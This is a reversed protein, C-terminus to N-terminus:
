AYGIRKIKTNLKSLAKQFKSQSDESGKVRVQLYGFYHTGILEIETKITEYEQASTTYLVRMLEQFPTDQEITIEYVPLLGEKQDPQLLIAPNEAHDEKLFDKILGTEGQEVLERLTGVATIEGHEMLALRDCISQVVEMQHTILLITIGLEKNIRKLLRLISQTTLPDLASTPEDCLLVHPNNALARAIAVRQKQGGSLSSPYENAKESLGVLELLETIRNKENQDIPGSLEIPFSVNQWVTRSSLLNFHQFIMGLKKREDRLNKNHLELINKGDIYVKGSEPKELLNISRILTSKGAGSSGIIGFIEGKNINLSVNKLVTLPKGAQTFTKYLNQLSIFSNKHHKSQNMHNSVAKKM